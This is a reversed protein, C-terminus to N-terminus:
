PLPQRCGSCLREAADSRYQAPDYARGCNPCEPLSRTPLPTAKAARHLRRLLEGVRNGYLFLYGGAVLRLLTGVYQPVSLRVAGAFQGVSETARLGILSGALSGLDPLTTIALYLGLVSYALDQLDALSIAHDQTEARPFLAEALRNRKRILLFGAAALILTPVVLAFAIELPSGKIDDKYLPITAVAQVLEFSALFALVGIVTFALSAVDRIKM